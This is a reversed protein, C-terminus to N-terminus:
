IKAENAKVPESVAMPKAPLKLIGTALATGLLIVLCGAIMNGTISEELFLLGWVMGFAPILYTVSVAKAPGVHAILRFFLIYAIGTCAIGLLLVSFWSKLSPMTDPWYILALPLMLITAAIQSGTANAFPNVGSLHRKTYNAAIGYSFSATLGAIIAWGSGGDKFSIKGWVLVTVGLFGVVLGLVRAVTLRDKLWFYAVIAGFLPVSANLVSTFGATLSLTAFAFLTFPIASNLVGVVTFHRNNGKLSALDGRVRLVILLFVMAIAVRIFILPVPGFEPAAIRMLLFSSGWIAALILLEIVDRPKM